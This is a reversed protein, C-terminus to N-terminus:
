YSQRFFSRAQKMQETSWFLVEDMVHSTSTSSVPRKERKKKKGGKTFTFRYTEVSFNFHSNM